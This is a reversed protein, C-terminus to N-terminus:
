ICEGSLRASLSQSYLTRYFNLTIDNHPLSGGTMAIIEGDIYEHRCEQTAEWELYEELTMREPYQPQAIM